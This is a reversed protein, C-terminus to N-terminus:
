KIFVAGHGEKTKYVRVPRIRYKSFDPTCKLVSYFNMNRFQDVVLNGGIAFILFLCFPYEDLHWQSHKSNELEPKRATCDPKGDSSWTIEGPNWNM